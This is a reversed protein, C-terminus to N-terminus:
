HKSLINMCKINPAYTSVTILVRSLNIGKNNTLSRKTETVTKSKFDMKDTLHLKAFGTGKQNGNKHFKKGGKM